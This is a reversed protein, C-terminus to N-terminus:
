IQSDIGPKYLIELKTKGPKHVIIQFNRHVLHAVLIKPIFIIITEKLKQMEIKYAAKIGMTYCLILDTFM